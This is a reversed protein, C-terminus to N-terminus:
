IKKSLVTRVARKLGRAGATNINALERISERDSDDLEINKGAIENFFDVYRKILIDIIEDTLRDFVIIDDIRGLFEPTFHKKIAGEIKKKQDDSSSTKVFGIGSETAELEATTYGLNTTFVIIANRFSVKRGNNDNMEGEDLIKLLVKMISPHAKEIEDFLVLSNPKERIQKILDPENDHGVYGPAAGTLKSMDMENGFEGCNVVILNSPSGFYTKAIQKCTETKGTGTPGALIMSILPKEPDCFGTDVIKLDKLVEDLAKNQGLIVSRLERETDAYKTESLRIDYKIKIAEIIDNVSVKEGKSFIKSYAFALELLNISKRPNAEDISYMQSFRLVKDIIEDDCEKLFHDKNKKLVMNMIVRTEDKTPESMIVKHFREIFAKQPLLYKDFEESTTALIMQIENRSIVPKLINGTTNGGGDASDGTNLLTHAEDVFIIINKNKKIVELLSTIKAEFDGRFRTGAVLAAPDLQYVFKNKFEKPCTGKNISDVLAYIASTKGVGAQGVLIVNNITRGCLGLFIQNVTKEIGVYSQPNARVWRNLNTLAPNKDLDKITTIVDELFANQVADRIDDFAYENNISELLVTVFLYGRNSFMEFIVDELDATKRQELCSNTINTILTKTDEDVIMEDNSRLTVEVLKKEFKESHIGFKDFVGKLKLATNYYKNEEGEASYASLNKALAIFVHSTTIKSHKLNNAVAPATENFLQMFEESYKKM